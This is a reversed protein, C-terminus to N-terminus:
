RKELGNYSFFFFSMQLQEKSNFSRYFIICGNRSKGSRHGSGVLDKEEFWPDLQFMKPTFFM